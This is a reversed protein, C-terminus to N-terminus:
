VKIKYRKRNSVKWYYELFKDDREATVRHVEALDAIRTISWNERVIENNYLELVGMLKSHASMKKLKRLPERQTQRSPKEKRKLSLMIASHIQQMWKDVYRLVKCDQKHTNEDRYKDYGTKASLESLLKHAIDIAELVGKAQEPIYKHINQQLLPYFQKNLWEIEDSTITYIPAPRDIPSHLRPMWKDSDCPRGGPRLAGYCYQSMWWEVEETINRYREIYGALNSQQTKPKSKTTGM